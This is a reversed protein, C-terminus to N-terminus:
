KNLKISWCYRGSGVTLPEVGPLCIEASTNTTPVEVHVFADGGVIEWQVAAKGYPTEQATEVWALGCVLAPAVVGMTALATNGMAMGDPNGLVMSPILWDGFHYDTNWLWRSRAKRAEDWTGYGEPHSNKACSDIYALWRGMAGYSEELIRKDGYAKYVAYPVMLVADGWGWSTDAGLEDRLFTAYAKLYPVIMPVAGSDMQEARANAMWGTLFPGAARNFCLTPAYAMIDGTWGAKERQPCDTPISITNSM